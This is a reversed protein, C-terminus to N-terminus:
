YHSTLRGGVLRGGGSIFGQYHSLTQTYTFIFLYIYIIYIKLFLIYFESHGKFGMDHAM